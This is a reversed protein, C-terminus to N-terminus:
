LNFAQKLIGLASKRTTEILALCEELRTPNAGETPYDILVVKENKKGDWGLPGTQWAAHHALQILYTQYLVEELTRPDDMLGHKGVTNGAIIKTKGEGSVLELPLNYVPGADFYEVGGIMVPQFLGAIACSAALCKTLPGDIFQALEGTKLRLAAIKLKLPLDSIDIEGLHTQFLLQMVHTSLVGRRPIALAVLKSWKFNQLIERIQLTSMGAAYFAGIVAGMSTGVVLSPRLGLEDMAELLGIHLFGLGGGGALCLALDPDANPSIEAM